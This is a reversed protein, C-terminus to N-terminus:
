RRVPFDLSVTAHASRNRFSPQFTMSSSACSFDRFGFQEVSDLAFVFAFNKAVADQLRHEIIGGNGPARSAKFRKPEAVPSTCAYKAGIEPAILRASWAVGSFITHHDIFQRPRDL